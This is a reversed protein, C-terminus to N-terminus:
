EGGTGASSVLESGVFTEQRARALEKEQQKSYVLEHGTLSGPCFWGLLFDPKESQSAAVTLTVDSTAKAREASVTQLTAYLVSRDANFIQVLNSGTDPDALQFTYTGAPLVQGPIQVAKGFTVKIQENAEDARAIIGFFLAFAIVLGLMIYTKHLKM